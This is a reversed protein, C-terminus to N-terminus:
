KPPLSRAFSVGLTLWGVLDADDAAGDPAVLVWGKM